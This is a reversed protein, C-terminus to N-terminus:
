DEIKLRRGTVRVFIDDLTSEQTHITQVGARLLTLFEPHEALGDLPFEATTIGAAAAYEVRVIPRGYQLRLARPADIMKISGNVLFAVRDCLQDALAMNHTTLMVTTGHARMDSIIDLVRRTNVPDLGSTPEDLFLLEPGHLLARALGLRQQMGKSFNAVPTAADGELGVLALAAHPAIAANRYLAAFYRLNELATLKQFHNPLEFTVGIREYYDSGWQALDRGLVMAHGQYSRLLGILIKQLTSKGAGSPGLFGFIEGPAVTFQIDTLAPQAARAYTFSLNDITIINM